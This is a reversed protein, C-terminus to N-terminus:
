ARAYPSPHRRDPWLFWRAFGHLHRPSVTLKHFLTRVPSQRGTAIQEYLNGRRGYDVATDLDNTYDDIAVLLRRIRRSSGFPLGAALQYVNWLNGPIGQQVVANMAATALTMMLAAGNRSFTAGFMEGHGAKVYASPWPRGFFSLERRSNLILSLARNSFFVDGLLLVNRDTWYPATALITEALSRNPPLLVTQHRRLSIRRDRVVCRITALPELAEVQRATREILPEGGFHILQKPVGLHENWREGSGACLMFLAATM